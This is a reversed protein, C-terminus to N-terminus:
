ALCKEHEGSAHLSHGESYVRRWQFLHSAILVYCEADQARAASVSGYLFEHLGTHGRQGVLPM